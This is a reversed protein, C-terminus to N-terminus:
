LNENASYGKYEDARLLPNWEFRCMELSAITTDGDNMTAILRVHDVGKVLFMKGAILPMREITSKVITSENGTAKSDLYKIGIFAMACSASKISADNTLADRIQRELQVCDRSFASQMVKESIAKVDNSSIGFRKAVDDLADKESAITSSMLARYIEFEERSYDVWMQESQIAELTPLAREPLGIPNIQQSHKEQAESFATSTSPTTTSTELNVQSHNADRNGATTLLLLIGGGFGLIVLTIKTRSSGTKQRSLVPDSHSTGNPVVLRAGCHNCTGATGQYKRSVALQQGCNSCEFRIM